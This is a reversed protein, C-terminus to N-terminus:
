HIAPKSASVFFSGTGPNGEFRINYSAAAGDGQEQSLKVRHYMDVFKHKVEALGIMPLISDCMISPAKADNQVIAKWKDSISEGSVASLSTGATRSLCLEQLPYSSDGIEQMIEAWKVPLATYLSKGHKLLSLAQERALLPYQQFLYMANAVVCLAQSLTSQTSEASPPNQCIGQPDLEKRIIWQSARIGATAAESSSLIEDLLNDASLAGDASYRQLVNIIVADDDVAPASASTRRVREGDQQPPHNEERFSTFSVDAPGVADLSMPHGSAATDMAGDSSSCRMLTTGNGGQRGPSLINLRKEDPKSDTSPPAGSEDTRTSQPLNDALKTADMGSTVKDSADDRLRVLMINSEMIVECCQLRYLVGKLKQKKRSQLLEAADLKLDSGFELKYQSLLSNSDLPRPHSKKLVMRVKDDLTNPPDDSGNVTISGSPKPQVSIDCLVEANVSAAATKLSGRLEIKVLALEAEMRALEGKHGELRQTEGLSLKLATLKNSKRDLESQLAGEMAISADEDKKLKSCHKCQNSYKGAFCPGSMPHGLPCRWSIIYKCRPLDASCAKMLSHGRGCKDQCLVDCPKCPGVHCRMKCPHECELLKDCAKTCGGDPCLRAFDGPKGMIAQTKHIQCKTPLGRFVFALSELSECIKRWLPGGRLPDHSGKASEFTKRNGIIIECDRARSLMVNVREPEKLFGILGNPNSRVLSVIVINAEEGQYNDITAVRVLTKGPPAEEKRRTLGESDGLCDRAEALDRDNVFVEFEVALANHLKTMQGLYPTLVVLDSAKYGQQFLYRVTAVVMGVEHGNTRSVSEISDSGNNEQDEPVGHDIFVIRSQLGKPHPHKCVSPADQLDTYTVLKPISSIDPHMRHQVSLTSIPMTLALREFLSRNLDFGRGSEVTLPYHQCKPRLQKHDGIMILRKSGSSLSTLVHAEMIEAAEEVLVIGASVGELLNKCMAAKTTTCGIVKAKSLVFADTVEKLQKLEAKATQITKLATMMASRKDAYLEHQWLVKQQRREEKSLHWLAGQSQTRLSAPPRKGKLWCKWLYDEGSIGQVLFGERDELDSSAVELQRWADAHHDQLHDRVRAWWKEGIERGLERELRTVDKEADEITGKLQAYRRTQERTFPMKGSSAQERLNYQSLRDNKSRGGLRVIDTIGADLLDELFDDLAHNTYTVCLIQDPTPTSLIIQTLLVGIFTKGTGPPGQILSVRNNLAHQLADSQKSDLMKVKERMSSPICTSQDDALAVQTCRIIEDAFPITHMLQLGRLIPQYAFLDGSIVFLRTPPVSQDSLEKLTDSTDQDTLFSLGIMPHVGALEKTERRSIIGFRIPVWNNKGNCRQLCMLADKPLVRRNKDWYDERERTAKMRSVHLGKPLHFKFVICPESPGMIKVEKGDKKHCVAAGSEVRHVRVGYFIDRQQKRPDDQQEKSPGIIDERLLRFQCDLLQAESKCGSDHTKPLYPEADCMFEDLTPIISISRYDEEDNSHRGGPLDAQSQRVKALSVGPASVLSGALVTQLSESGGHHKFIEAIEKVSEDQRANSSELAIRTIFWILSTKEDNTTVRGNKCHELICPVLFPTLYLRSLLSNMPTLYVPKHLEDQGLCQVLPLFGNVFVGQDTIYELSKLLARTGVADVLRYCLASGGEVEAFTLAARLLRTAEESSEISSNADKTLRDFFGRERDRPQSNRTSAGTGSKRSPCNRAIHGGDGCDYCARKNNDRGRDGGARKRSNRGGASRSSM